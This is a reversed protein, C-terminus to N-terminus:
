IFSVSRLKHAVEGDRCEGAETHVQRAVSTDFEALEVLSELPILRCSQNFSIRLSAFFRKSMIMQYEFLKDIKAAGYFASVSKPAIPNKGCFGINKLCVFRLFRLLRKTTLIKFICDSSSFSSNQAYFSLLM